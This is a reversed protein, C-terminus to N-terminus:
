RPAARGVRHAAQAHDGGAMAMAAAAPSRMKSIRSARESTSSDGSAVRQGRDCAVHAELM